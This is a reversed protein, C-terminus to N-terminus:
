QRDGKANIFSTVSQRGAQWEGLMMEAAAHLFAAAAPAGLNGTAHWVVGLYAVNLSTLM